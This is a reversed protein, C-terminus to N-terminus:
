KVRKISCGLSKTNAPSIEQKNALDSLAQLLYANEVNDASQANDDIAGHYVLSLDRDFLFVEPTRMAGFADALKHNKDLAYFFSYKLREARMVMDEFSDGNERYAENPNLAVMGIGRQKAKNAVENYRDEWKKVWPCTNCSFIVLLGNPGRSNNLSIMEGSTDKLEVDVLPAKEGLELPETRIQGYVTALSFPLIVLICVAKLLTSYKM